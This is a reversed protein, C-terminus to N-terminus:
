GAPWGSPAGSAWGSRRPPASDHLPDPVPAGLLVRVLAPGGRRRAGPRSGPCGPARSRLGCRWSCSWAPRASSPWRTLEVARARGVVGSALAPVPRRLGPEGRRLVRRDRVVRRRHGPEALLFALVARRRAVGGAARRRRAGCPRCRGQRCRPRRARAGPVGRRVAVGRLTDAGGGGACLGARRIDRGARRIPRGRHRVM